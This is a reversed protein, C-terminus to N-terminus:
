DSPCSVCAPGWGGVRGGAAHSYREPAFFIEPGLFRERLVEASFPTGARGVGEYRRSYKAPELAFKDQEKAVDATCCTATCPTHLCYVHLMLPLSSTAPAAVAVFMLLLLLPAPSLM